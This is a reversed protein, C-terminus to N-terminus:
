RAVSVLRCDTQDPELSRDTSVLVAGRLLQQQNWELTVSNTFIGM